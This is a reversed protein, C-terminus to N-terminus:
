AFIKAGLSLRMEMAKPFRNKLQVTTHPVLLTLNEAKLQDESLTLHLKPLNLVMDQVSLNAAGDPLIGTLQVKKIKFEPKQANNMGKWGIGEPIFGKALAQIEDLHLAVRNLTLNVNVGTKEEMKVRGKFSLGSKEMLRIEGVDLNVIKDTLEASGKQNITISFPGIQKEKLPGGAALINKCALHLDFVIKKDTQLKANTQLLMEGSLEPLVTPMFPQVAEALPALDIKVQGELGKQVMAGKLAVLLGPLQGNVKLMAAQPNLAGTEDVLRDAHVALDLPPLIKGDMSQRSSINLDVPKSLLSPMLLSFAGDHIELLRNEMRDEVRLQAHTLKIEAALDGPLIFPTALEKEQPADRPSETPERPPKLQALWAELNTRGDKERILNAKLGDVELDILLRKPGLEFDVSLLLQDVSLIPGKAYEPDDAAELGKVKIGEKWTWQLDQVTISRHLSKSARTEFQHRFWDTSVMNPTFFLGAAVLVLMALLLGTIWLVWKLIRRFM